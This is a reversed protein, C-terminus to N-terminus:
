AAVKRKRAPQEALLARVRRAAEFVADIKGARVRVARVGVRIVDPLRTDAASRPMARISLRHGIIRYRDRVEPWFHAMQELMAEARKAVEVESLEDLLADAERWTRCDKRFPTLSASTLSSLGLAPNWPYVSGFPGDMITVAKDPPGELLAMVCPEYRDVNEGDLACFTCDVTLDWRRDDVMLASTRYRVRDGLCREFYARAEDIVIHREGTLVAGEVNQLGFEAPAYAELFEVEGRLVRTYTGFDVLSDHAAVAYLNVPIARTLAGYTQLFEAQHAQCAARTAHSRPYHFGVHLRAPNSGSAGSFLRDAKEHLEVDHGEGILTKAIHCGFWGGGLVRVKM